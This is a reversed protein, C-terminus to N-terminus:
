SPQAAYLMFELTLLGIALCWYAIGATTLWFAAPSWEKAVFRRAATEFIMSPGALAMVALRLTQNRGARAKAGSLRYLHATIASLTFGVTITYLAFTLEAMRAQDRKRRTAPPMGTFRVKEQEPDPWDPNRIAHV